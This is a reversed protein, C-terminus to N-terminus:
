KYRTKYFCLFDKNFYGGGGRILVSLKTQQGTIIPLAYQNRTIFFLKILSMNKDFSRLNSPGDSFTHDIDTVVPRSLQYTKYGNKSIRFLYETDDNYLYFPEFPLDTENIAKFPILTGGYSIAGNPMYIIPQFVGNKKEQIKIIKKFGLFGLRFVKEKESIIEAPNLNAGRNGKLVIDKEPFFKLADIFYESWGNEMVNDDDLLLLYDSKNKRAEIIGAKFGGASGKNEGNRILIINNERDNKIYADIEAGNTSANDVLIVKDVAKDFIVADLTKKLLSFRKGYTVIVVNIKM